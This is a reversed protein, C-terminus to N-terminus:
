EKKAPITYERKKRFSELYKDTMPVLSEKKIRSIEEVYPQVADDLQTGQVQVERIINKIIDLFIKADTHDKFIEWAPIKFLEEQINDFSAVHMNENFYKRFDEFKRSSLDKQILYTTDDQIFIKKDQNEKKGYKNLFDEISIEALTQKYPLENNKFLYEVYSPKMEGKNDICQGLVKPGLENTNFDYEKVVHFGLSNRLSERGMLWSDATIKEPYVGQEDYFDIIASFSDTIDMNQGEQDRFKDFHISHESDLYIAGFYEGTVTPEYTASKKIEEQLGKFSNVFWLSFQDIDLERYKKSLIERAQSKKNDFDQTDFSAGSVVAYDSCYYNFDKSDDLSDKMRNIHDLYSFSIYKTKDTWLPFNEQFKSMKSIKVELSKNDEIKTNKSVKEM